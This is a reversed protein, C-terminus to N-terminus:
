LSFINFFNFDQGANLQSEISINQESPIRHSGVERKITGVAGPHRIDNSPVLVPDSSSFCVASSSSSSSSPAPQGHMAGTGFAISLSKVAEIPSPASGMKNTGITSSSVEPLNGGTGRRVNSAHASISGAVVTPGNGM